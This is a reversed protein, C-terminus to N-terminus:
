RAPGSSSSPSGPSGRSPARDLRVGGDLRRLRRAPRSAPALDLRPRCRRCCRAGSHDGSGTVAAAGAWDFRRRAGPRGEALLHRALVVATLSVPVTVLFVARWGVTGALLGGAAVGTAGGLTSAAGWTAMAKVRQGVTFTSLLMSMAAPSLAAAGVGQVLRGAILLEQSVAGAAVLTGLTFLGAGVIFVRRRGFLDAVRGVASPTRRVGPRLRERGVHRRGPRLRPRVPDLSAGRERDLRGADRPVPSVGAARPRPAATTASWAPVPEAGCAPALRGATRDLAYTTM